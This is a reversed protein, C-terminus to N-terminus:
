GCSPKTKGSLTLDDRHATAGGALLAARITPSWLMDRGLALQDNWRQIVAEAEGRAAKDGRRARLGGEHRAGPDSDGHHGEGAGASRRRLTAVGSRHHRRANISLGLVKGYRRRPTSRGATSGSCIPSRRTPSTRFTESSDKGLLDLAHWTEDDFQVRKGPM